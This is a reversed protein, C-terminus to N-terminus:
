GVLLLHVKRPGHAGMQIIQEVDATRSPGTIINIARPMTTQQQRIKYWLDEITNVLSDRRVVCLFHDPLFNLSVPTLKSSCLVVSGTEAIGAFAETLVVKDEISASRTEVNLQEPWIIKEIMTTTACLLKKDLSQEGMYALVADVIDSETKLQVVSAASQEAKRIFRLMLEESWKPQPGRLHQQLRQNLEQQNMIEARNQNARRIRQMISDRASSM